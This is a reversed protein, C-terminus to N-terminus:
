APPWGAARLAAEYKRMIHAPVPSYAGNLGLAEKLRSNERVLAEAIQRLDELGATADDSM